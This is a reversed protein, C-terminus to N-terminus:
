AAETALELQRPQLACNSWVAERSYRKQNSKVVALPEFPLWSAGQAECAIVQGQRSGCWAALEAYDLKKSGHRYHSGPRGQYPPDVFWTAPEDSIQRYDGEVVRWHRIHRLQAAILHKVWDGWFSRRYEPSTLLERRWASATRNPMAGARTLWFGVLWRVEQPWSAALDDVSDIRSPISRIEDEKVAILYSWLGAIIPDSDCLEVRRDPYHLAYCASGAFPERLLDFAPRPYLRALRWKAGYYSFFPRLPKM